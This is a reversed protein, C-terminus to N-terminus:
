HGRGQQLLENLRRRYEEATPEAPAAEEQSVETPLVPVTTKSDAAPRQVPTEEQTKQTKAVPEAMPEPSANGGQFQALFTAEDMFPLNAPASAKASSNQPMISQPSRETDNKAPETVRVAPESILTPKQIKPTSEPTPRTVLPSSPNAGDNTERGESSFLVNPKKPIFTNPHISPLHNESSHLTNNPERYQSAFAQGPHSHNRRSTGSFVSQFLSGLATVCLAALMGAGVSLVIWTFPASLSSRVLPGQILRLSVDTRIDYYTGIKQFLVTSMQRALLTAEEQNEAQVTYTIVGSDGQRKVSLMRKWAALRAGASEEDFASNEALREDSALLADFFSLTSPLVAINEVVQDAAARQNSTPMVLLSVEAEYGRFRDLLVFGFVGVFFLALVSFWTTNLSPM